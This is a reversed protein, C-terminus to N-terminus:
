ERDGGHSATSEPAESIGAIMCQPLCLMETSPSNHVETPFSLSAVALRYLRARDEVEQGQEFPHRYKERCRM